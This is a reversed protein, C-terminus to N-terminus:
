KEGAKDLLIQWATVTRGRRAKQSADLKPDEEVYKLYEPTIVDFIGQDAAVYAKGPTCSVMTLALCVAVAGRISLRAVSTHSM